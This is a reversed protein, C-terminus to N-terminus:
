QNLINSDNGALGDSGLGCTSFKQPEGPEGAGQPMLPWQRLRKLEFPRLFMDTSGGDDSGSSPELDNPRERGVGTLGLNVGLHRSHPDKTPAVSSQCRVDIGVLLDALQKLECPSQGRSSTTARQPVARQEAEDCDRSESDGLAGLQLECINIQM